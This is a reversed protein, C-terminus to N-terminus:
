GTYLPHHACNAMPPMPAVGAGIHPRRYVLIKGFWVPKLFQSVAAYSEAHGAFLHGGPHLLAALRQLVTRTTEPAFYITVNRCFIFDFPAAELADLLNHQVFRVPRQVDSRLSWGEKANDFFATRRQPSLGRLEPERYLGRRASTLEQECLDVALVTVNFPKLLEQYELLAMAISYPEQGRACGASLIRIERERAFEKNSVVVPLLFRQFIEFQEPYRFWSSEHTTVTSILQQWVPGRCDVERRLAGHFAALDVFGTQAACDRIRSELITRRIGTFVLGFREELCASIEAILAQEQPDTNGAEVAALGARGCQTTATPKTM